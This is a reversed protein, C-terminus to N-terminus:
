GYGSKTAELGVDLTELLVALDEVPGAEGAEAVTLVRRRHAVLQLLGIQAAERHLASLAPEAGGPGDVVLHRCRCCGASGGGVPFRTQPMHKSYGLHAVGSAQGFQCTE